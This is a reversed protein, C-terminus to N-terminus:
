GSSTISTQWAHPRVKLEDDSSLDDGHGHTSANNVAKPTSESTAYAAEFSGDFIQNIITEANGTQSAARRLADLDVDPCIALVQDVVGEM